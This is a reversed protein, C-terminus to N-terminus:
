SLSNVDGFLKQKLWGCAKKFSDFAISAETLNWSKGLQLHSGVGEIEDESPFRDKMMQEAARFGAIFGAFHNHDENAKAYEEALRKLENDPLM